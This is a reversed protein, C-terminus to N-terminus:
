SRRATVLWNLVLDERAGRSELFRFFRNILPVLFRFKYHHNVELALMQGITAWTRGQPSIQVDVFGAEAFMTELGWRTFRSFDYPVEHAPWTGPATLVLRGGPKLVRAMNVLALRPDLVHELVQTSMLSDFTADDFPLSLADGEVDPFSLPSRRDVGVYETVGPGLLKRYPQLGCGVDIVRGELKPLEAVLDRWLPEYHLYMVHNPPKESPADFGEPPSIETGLAM